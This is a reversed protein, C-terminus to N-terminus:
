YTSPADSAPFSDDIMKDIQKEKLNERIKRAKHASEERINKKSKKNNRIKNNEM